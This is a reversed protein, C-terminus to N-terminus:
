LSYISKTVTVGLHSLSEWLKRAEEDVPMIEVYYQDSLETVNSRNIAEQNVAELDVIKGTSTQGDDFTVKVRDGIALHKVSQENFLAKIRVRPKQIKISLVPESRLAFETEQKNLNSIQGDIPSNYVQEGGPYEAFLMEESVAARAIGERNQQMRNVKINMLSLEKQLINLESNLDVLKSNVSHLKSVPEIDLKVEKEILDKQDRYFSIKDRLEARETAMLDIDSRLEFIDERLKERKQQLESLSLSKEVKAYSFLSDETTVKDGKDVFIETIKVDSPFRVQLHTGIIRGEGSVFFYASLLYYLVVIILIGLIVMYIARDWSRNKPTTKEKTGRIQSPRNKFQESRM